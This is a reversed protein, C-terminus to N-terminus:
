GSRETSQHGRLDPDVKLGRGDALAGAAALVRRAARLDGRRIDGSMSTLMADPPMHDLARRLTSRVFAGVEGGRDLQEILTNNVLRFSHPYACAMAAGSMVTWAILTCYLRLIHPM